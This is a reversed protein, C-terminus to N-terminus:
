KRRSYKINEDPASGVELSAMDFRDDVRSYLLITIMGARGWSTEQSNAIATIRQHGSATWYGNRKMFNEIASGLTKIIRKFMPYEEMMERCAGAASRESRSRKMLSTGFDRLAWFSIDAVAFIPLTAGADVLSPDMMGAIFQEGRQSISKITKLVVKWNEAKSVSRDPDYYQDHDVYICDIAAKQNRSDKTSQGSLAMSTTDRAAPRHVASGLLADDGVALIEASLERITFALNEIEVFQENNTSASNDM